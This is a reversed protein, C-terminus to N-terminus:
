EGQTARLLEHPAEELNAMAGRLLQNAATDNASSARLLQASADQQKASIALLPLTDEALRKITRQRETYAHAQALREVVPIAALDGVQQLAKLIAKMLLYNRHINSMKLHRYLIARQQPNLLNGNTGTLRPLLRTLAKSAMQQVVADPWELAEALPGVARIDDTNALRRAAESQTTSLSFRHLQTSLLTLVGWLLTWAWAGSSFAVITKVLLFPVICVWSAVLFAMRMGPNNHMRSEERLKELQSDTEAIAARTSVSLQAQQIVTAAEDPPLTAAQQVVQAQERRLNYNQLCERATDRVMRRAAFLPATSAMQEMYLVADADGIKSYALLIARNLAADSARNRMLSQNLYARQAPTLLHGAGAPLHPLLATLMRAAVGRVRPHPSCLAQSLAGIWRIDYPTLTAADEAYGARTNLRIIQITAMLLMLYPILVTITSAFSLSVLFAVATLPIALLWLPSVRSPTRVLLALRKWIEANAAMQETAVTVTEEQLSQESSFPTQHGAEQLRQPTNAQWGM